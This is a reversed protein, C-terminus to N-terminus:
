IFIGSVLYPQGCTATKGTTMKATIATQRIDPITKKGAQAV